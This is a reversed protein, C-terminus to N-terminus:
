KPRQGTGSVVIGLAPVIRTQDYIRQALLAGPPAESPSVVAALRMAQFEARASDLRPPAVVLCSDESGQPTGSATICWQTRKGTQM